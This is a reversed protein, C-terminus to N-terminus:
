EKVEESSPHSHDDERGPREVGLFPGRTGM